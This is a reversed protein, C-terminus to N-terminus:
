GLLVCSHKVAQQYSIVEVVVGNEKQVGIPARLVPKGVKTDQERQYRQKQGKIQIEETSTASCRIM